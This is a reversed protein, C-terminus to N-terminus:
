NRKFKIFPNVEILDPNIKKTIGLISSLLGSVPKLFSPSNDKLLISNQEVLDAIAKNTSLEFLYYLVQQPLKVDGKESELREGCRKKSNIQIILSCILSIITLMTGLREVNRETIPFKESLLKNKQVFGIIETCAAGFDSWRIVCSCVSEINAQRPVLEHMVLAQTAPVISFIHFLLYFAFYIWCLVYFFFSCICFISVQYTKPVVKICKCSKYLKQAPAVSFYCERWLNFHDFQIRYIWSKHVKFIVIRRQSDKWYNPFPTWGDPPFAIYFHWFSTEM